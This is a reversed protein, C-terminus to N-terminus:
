FIGVRTVDSVLTIKDPTRNEIVVENAGWKVLIMLACIYSLTELVWEVLNSFQTSVAIHADVYRSPILMNYWRSGLTNIFSMNSRGSHCGIPRAATLASLEVVCGNDDIVIPKFSVAAVCSMVHTFTASCYRQAVRRMASSRKAQRATQRDPGTREKQSLVVDSLAMM